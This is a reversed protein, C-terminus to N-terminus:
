HTQCESYRLARLVRFHNSHYIFHIRLLYQRSYEMYLSETIYIYLIYINVRADFLNPENLFRMPYIACLLDALYVWSEKLEFGSFSELAFCERRSFYCILLLRTRSCKPGCFFFCLLFILLAWRFAAAKWPREGQYNEERNPMRNPALNNWTENKANKSIIKKKLNRIWFGVFLCRCFFTM